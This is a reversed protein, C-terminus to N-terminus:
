LVVKRADADRRPQGRAKGFDLEIGLGALELDLFHQADRVAARHEMREAKTMLDRAAVHHADAEGMELPMDVIRLEANRRRLRDLLRLRGCVEVNGGLDAPSRDL